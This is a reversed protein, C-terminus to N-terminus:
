PGNRTKSIENNKGGGYETYPENSPAVVLSRRNNSGYNRLSTKERLGGPMNGKM